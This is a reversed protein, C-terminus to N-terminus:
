YRDDNSDKNPSDDALDVKNLAEIIQSLPETHRGANQDSDFLSELEFSSERASEILSAEDDYVAQQRVLLRQDYEKFLAVSAMAKDDEIGLQILSERALDLASLYTERWIHKVGAERLLYFHHRDRARALVTLKPYAKHLFQATKVSREINDIALVFLKTEAIGAAKLLEHNNPDGYFIDNGFKRVFDVRRASKEIATFEIGRMKLVRGVIQGFRGFGAIIVPAHETPMEDFDRPNATPTLKADIFRNIAWFAVPTLAMSVTVVMLLINLFDREVLAQQAAVGLIVFAFEGGQCLLVGLRLSPGIRNGSLKAIIVLTVFKFGMLALAAGFIVLPKEIILAADANMGVSMFFLGLLLGKFPEISAELEHRYPSDALLVGTLFAGLAMSIGLENMAMSAGIVIFLAAATLLESAGSESIFRFFPRVVIRSGIILTAFVGLLTLFYTLDYDQARVGSLFPIAILLPIVAMDQFLLISFSERGHTTGLQQKEGLIQLVFATSSLSLAFGVIVSTDFALGVFQWLFLTIAAAATTVQLGGLVFISRRLAWLRSPQLELGILFLLMVVGLEAFHLLSETDGVLNLVSPGILVGALLYGLVTALGFRKGLPVLVVAVGLILTAEMLLSTTQTANVAM